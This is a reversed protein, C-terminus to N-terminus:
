LILLIQPTPLDSVLSAGGGGSSGGNLVATVAIPHTPIRVNNSGLSYTSMEKILPGRIFSIERIWSEKDLFVDATHESYRLRPITPLDRPFRDPGEERTM